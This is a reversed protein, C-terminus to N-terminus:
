GGAFSLVLSRRPLGRRLARHQAVDFVRAARRGRLGVVLDAASLPRVARNGSALRALTWVEGDPRSRTAVHSGARPASMPRFRRPTELANAPWRWSDATEGFRFSSTGLPERDARSHRFTRALRARAASRPYDPRVRTNRPSCGPGGRVLRAHDWGVVLWPDYREATWKARRAILASYRYPPPLKSTLDSDGAEALRRRAGGPAARFRSRYAIPYYRTRTRQLVSAGRQPAIRLVRASNPAPIPTTGIAASRRSTEGSAAPPLFAAPTQISPTQRAMSRLAAKARPAGFGCETRPTQQRDERRVLRLALV